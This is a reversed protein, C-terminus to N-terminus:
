SYFFIVNEVYPERKLDEYSRGSENKNTQIFTQMALCWFEDKVANNESGYTKIGDKHFKCAM